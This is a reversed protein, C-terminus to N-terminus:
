RDEWFLTTEGNLPIEQPIAANEDMKHYRVTQQAKVVETYLPDEGRMGTTTSSTPLDTISTHLLM